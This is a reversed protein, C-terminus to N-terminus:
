WWPGRAPRAAAAASAAPAAGSLSATVALVAAAVLLEARAARGFGRAARAGGGVAPVFRYRNLAGLGVLVAVLVVKALLLRGYDTHSSRAYAARRPWPAGCAPSSWRRWPWAPSTRSVACRPPAGAAPQQGAIGLLLWALGGLWVAVALM